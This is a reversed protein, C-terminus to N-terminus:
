PQAEGEAVQRLAAVHREVAAYGEADLPIGGYWVRDTAEVLPALGDRLTPRERLRQLHERNTQHPNYSLSGREDLWLLAALALMRTANRFDGARAFTAAQAHADATDRAALAAPSALSAQARTVRRLGRMWMLLVGVVLAIAVATVLWSVLTGPPGSAVEAIPGVAPAMQDFLWDFFREIQQEIWGPERQAESFPPLNMIADLQAQAQAPDPPNTLALADILAGLRATIFPLDPENAVLAMALWSNDVQALAGNPMVIQQADSLTRGLQELELRDGRAAAARAARLLQDYQALSLQQEQAVAAGPFLSCCLTLLALLVIQKCNAM